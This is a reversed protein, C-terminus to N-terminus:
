TSRTQFVSVIDSLSLSTKLVFFNLFRFIDNIKVSPQSIAWIVRRSPAFFGAKILKSSLLGKTDPTGCFYFHYFFVYLIAKVILNWIENFLLDIQLTKKWLLLQLAKISKRFDHFIEHFRWVKRPLKFKALLGTFNSSFTRCNWCKLANRGDFWIVNVNVNIERFNQLFDHPFFQFNNVRRM